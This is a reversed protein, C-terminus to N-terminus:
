QYICYGNGVPKLSEEEYEYEVMADVYSGDVWTRVTLCLKDNYFIVSPPIDAVELVHDSVQINEEAFVALLRDGWEGVVTNNGKVRYGAIDMEQFSDLDIVRVGRNNLRTNWCIILEDRGDGTVDCLFVQAKPIPEYFEEKGGDAELIDNGRSIKYGNLSNIGTEYIVHIDNWTYVISYETGYAGEGKYITPSFYQLKLNDAKIKEYYAELEKQNEEALDSYEPEASLGASDTCATLFFSVALILSLIARLVPKRNNM